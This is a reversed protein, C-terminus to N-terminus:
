LSPLPFSSTSSASGYTRLGDLKFESFALTGHLFNWPSVAAKFHDIQLIPAGGQSVRLGDIELQFPLQGDYRDIEIKWGTKYEVTELIAKTLTQKAPEIRFLIIFSVILLFIAAFVALLAKLLFTKM